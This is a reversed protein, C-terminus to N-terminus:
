CCGDELLGIPEWLVFDRVARCKKRMESIMELPHVDGYPFFVIKVESEYRNEHNSVM